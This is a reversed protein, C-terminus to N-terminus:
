HGIKLPRGLKLFETMLKDCTKSSFFWFCPEPDYIGSNRYIKKDPIMVSGTIEMEDNNIASGKEIASNQVLAIDTITGDLVEYLPLNQHEGSYNLRYHILEISFGPTIHIHTM